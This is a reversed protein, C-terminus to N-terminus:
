ATWREEKESHNEATNEYTGEEDVKKVEGVGLSTTKGASCKIFCMWQTKATKGSIHGFLPEQGIV